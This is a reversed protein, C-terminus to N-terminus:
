PDRRKEHAATSWGEWARLSEPDPLADPADGPLGYVEVGSLTGENEYIFVGSLEAETGFVFTGLVHVGPPATPRGPVKFQFSACGCRCRWTTADAAELQGLFARADPGSNELMWRALRREEDTLPRTAITDTM